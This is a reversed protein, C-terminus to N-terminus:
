KSRQHSVGKLYYASWTITNIGLGVMSPVNRNTEVHLISLNGTNILWPFHFATLHSICIKVVFDRLDSWVPMTCYHRALHYRNTDAKRGADIHWKVVLSSDILTAHNLKKSDEFVLILGEGMTYCGNWIGPVDWVGINQRDGCRLYSARFFDSKRCAGLWKPTVRNGLRHLQNWLLNSVVSGLVIIGYECRCEVRWSDVGSSHFLTLCKNLDAKCDLIGILVPILTVPESVCDWEVDLLLEGNANWPEDVACLLLSM